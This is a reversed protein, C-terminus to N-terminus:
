DGVGAAECLRRFSHDTALVFEHLDPVTDWDGAFGWSLTDRYSMLAIGTSLLGMLPILPHSERLEAGLLFLAERPGPVNTICLNFPVAVNMLRAGLSLVTSGTWETLETLTAGALAAHTRKLEATAKAVRAVREIPDREDIPLPVVWASVRNGLKGREDDMRTSVPVMVRFDLKRVSEQRSRKLFRRVGGAAVALVVDNVTVGLKKAVRRLRRLDMPLWDIRRYPGVPQNISTSSALPSAGGTFGALAGLRAAFRERAHDHDRALDLLAGAAGIPARLVREAEDRALQAASPPPRPLWVHPPDIKESPESTLLVALLDVGSIGDVMCHHIKSVIALRDGELGEIVWMEWLPKGRDLHQSFIRAVTRKLLRLDGPRPLRSHRVHYHVNFHADDVWIPHREVPTWALRQRYRPIRHLRSVVYEEIREIDVGGQPRRLPAADFIQVAGVHMPNNPGEFVLFSHDQQTLREYHWDSM